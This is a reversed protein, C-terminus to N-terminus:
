ITSYQSRLGFVKPFRFRILYAPYSPCLYDLDHVTTTSDQRTLLIGSFGLTAPLRSLMYALQLEDASRSRM